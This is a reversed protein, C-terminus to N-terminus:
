KALIASNQVAAIPRKNGNIIGSKIRSESRRQPRPGRISNPTVVFRFDERDRLSPSPSRRRLRQHFPSSKADYGETLAESQWKGM